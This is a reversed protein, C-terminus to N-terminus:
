LRDNRLQSGSALVALVNFRLVIRLEGSFYQPAFLGRVEAVDYMTATLTLHGNALGCDWPELISDRSSMSYMSAGIM